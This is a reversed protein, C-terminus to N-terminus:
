ELVLKDVVVAAGYITLSNFSSYAPQQSFVPNWGSFITIEAPSDLFLDEGYAGEEVLIQIPGVPDSAAADEVSSYCPYNGGCDGYSYFEVYKIGGGPLVDVTTTMLISAYGEKDIAQISIIYLGVQNFNPYVAEYRGNGVDVLDMTPLDTIPDDPSGFDHDPPTLAMFVREIGNLDSVGEAFILASASNHLTQPPSVNTIVPVDGGFTYEDGVKLHRALDIDESENAVGDGDAEIQPTQTFYALALANKAKIFSNYFTDGVLFRGWFFFSFSLNGRTAFIANQNGASSTFVYRSEGNPPILVDIFSGSQCADYLVVVDGTITTQATDLWFDLDTALLIDEDDDGTANLRFTENGGHDTMYIFLNEADSAWAIAAQLNSVSAIEDVVANSEPSLYYIQQDNFGQITLAHYAKNALMRTAEWLSNGPYPGGGAVIIAKNGSEVPPTPFSVDDGEVEGAANDAVLRFHHEVGPALGTILANVSVYESGAPVVGPTTTYGYSTTEGYEFYYTTEEGNPNIRGNLVASETEISTAPDTIVDPASYDWNDQDWVMSDWNSDAWSSIPTFLTLFLVIMIKKLM